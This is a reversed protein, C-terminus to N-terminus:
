NVMMLLYRKEGCVERFAKARRIVMPESETEMFVETMIKAKELCVSPKIERLRKVAQDIRPFM